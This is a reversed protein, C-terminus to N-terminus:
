RDGNERVLFQLLATAEDPSVDLDAMPVGYREVMARTLPDHAAMWEPDTVQRLLWRATRRGAVGRLDPANEDSGSEHCGTCGKADFLMQGTAALPAVLTVTELARPGRDLEAAQTGATDSTPVDAATRGSDGAAGDNGKGGRGCGVLPLWLILLMLPIGRGTRNRRM